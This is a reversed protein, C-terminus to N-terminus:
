KEIEKLRYRGRGVYKLFERRMKYHKWSNHEPASSIVYTNFSNKNLGPYKKIALQYLDKASFVGMGEKKTIMKATELVIDHIKKKGEKKGRAKKKGVAAEIPLIVSKPNLKIDKIVVNASKKKFILSMAVTVTFDIKKRKMM